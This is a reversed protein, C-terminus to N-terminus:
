SWCIAGVTVAAGATGDTRQVAIQSLNTLGLLLIMGTPVRVASGGNIKISVTVGTQNSFQAWKCAQSAFADFTTGDTNTTLTASTPASPAIADLAAKDETSLVVPASEAAAGRGPTWVPATFDAGAGDKLTKNTYAM